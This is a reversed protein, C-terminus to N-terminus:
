ASRATVVEGTAPDVYGQLPLDPQRPNQRTLNNDVTTFFLTDERDLKPAKVTVSDEITLYESTSKKPPKIKLKLVLEGPKGTARVSAVLQQLDDALEDLTAGARLERLTELFPRPM